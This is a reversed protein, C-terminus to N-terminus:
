GDHKKGAKESILRNNLAFRLMRPMGNESAARKRFLYAAYMIQLHQDAITTNLVIGEKRIYEKALELLSTLYGDKASNMINLDYKLLTLLISEEEM